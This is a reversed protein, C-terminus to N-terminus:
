FTGLVGAGVGSGLHMPVIHLADENRVNRVLAPKTALEGALLLAGGAAQMVGDVILGMVAFVDGVCQFAQGASQNNQDPNCGYNRQGMTIWPGAVPLLLWATANNSNAALDTVVSFFYPIGLVLAGAVVLGTRPQEEVHYGPPAPDGPHWQSPQPGPPPAVAAGPPPPPPPPLSPPPPPPPLPPSVATAARDGNAADSQAFAAGTMLTLGLGLALGLSAKLDVGLGRAVTRM